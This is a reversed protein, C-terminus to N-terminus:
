NHGLRHWIKLSHGIQKEGQWYTQLKAGLSNELAKFQQQHNQINILLPLDNEVVMASPRQKDTHYSRMLNRLQYKGFWSWPLFKASAERWKFDIQKLEAQYISLDYKFILRTQSQVIETTVAKAESIQRIDLGDIIKLLKLDYQQSFAFIKQYIEVDAQLQQLNEAQKFQCADQWVHLSRHIQPILEAIRQQNHQYQDQWLLNWFNPSSGEAFGNLTDRANSSIQQYQLWAKVALDKLQSRAQHTLQQINLDFRLTEIERHLLEESMADFLSWGISHQQHLIQVHQNLVDRSEVM